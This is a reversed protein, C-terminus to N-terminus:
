QIIESYDIFVEYKNIAELVISLPNFTKCSMFTKLLDSSFGSVLATGNTDITIPCSINNMSSNRLNWYVINPMVLDCKKFLKKYSDYLFEKNNAMDFQMDSFVFLTIPVNKENDNSEINSIRKVIQDELILKMVANFDTNLGFSAKRISNVKNYLSINDGAPIKHWTPKASFTIIDNGSLENIILGLAIAVEMPTGSMSGSTDVVAYANSLDIM